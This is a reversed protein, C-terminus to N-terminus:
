RARARALVTPEGPPGLGARAVPRAPMPVVALM